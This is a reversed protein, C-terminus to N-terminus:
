THPVHDRPRDARAINGARDPNRFGRARHGTLACLIEDEKDRYKRRRNPQQVQERDWRKIASVQQKVGVFGDRAFWGTVIGQPNQHSNPYRQDKRQHDERDAIVQEASYPTVPAM